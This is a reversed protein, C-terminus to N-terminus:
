RRALRALYDRRWTLFGALLRELEDIPCPHDDVRLDVLAGLRDRDQLPGVVLLAASSAGRRDGGAKQGAQLGAVLRHALPLEGEHEFARVMAEVVSPAVLTNGVAACDQGLAQGSEAPVETGTHLAVQGEWSMIAVQRHEREHDDELISSLAEEPSLGARLLALGETGYRTNTRAQTAIVGIGHEAHPVRMGVAFAATATAIGAADEGVSRGLLSFTGGM